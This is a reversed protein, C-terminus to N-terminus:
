ADFPHFGFLIENLIIGLSWLDSKQTYPILKYNGSFYVEHAMTYPTGINPPAM